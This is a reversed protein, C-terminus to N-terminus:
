NGSWPNFRPGWCHFRQTRVVPSGPFEWFRRSKFLLCSFVETKWLSIFSNFSATGRKLILNKRLSYLYFIYIYLVIFLLYVTKKTKRKPFGLYPSLIKIFGSFIFKEWFGVVGYKLEYKSLAPKIHSDLYVIEVRWEM